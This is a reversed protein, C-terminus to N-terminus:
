ERGEGEGEGEEEDDEMGLQPEEVFHFKEETKTNKFFASEAPIETEDDNLIQWCLGWDYDTRRFGDNRIYCRLWRRLRSVDKLILKMPYETDHQKTSIMCHKTVAVAIGIFEVWAISHPPGYFNRKYVGADIASAFAITETWYTWVHELDEIVQPTLFRSIETEFERMATVNKEQKVPFILRTPSDLGRKILVAMVQAVAAMTTEWKEAKARVPIVSTIDINYLALFSSYKRKTVAPYQNTLEISLARITMGGATAAEEGSLQQEHEMMDANGSGEASM